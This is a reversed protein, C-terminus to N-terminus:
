CGSPRSSSVGPTAAAGTANAPATVAPNVLDYSVSERCAASNPTPIVTMTPTISTDALGAISPQITGPSPSGPIEPTSLPLAAGNTPPGGPVTSCVTTSPSGLPSVPSITGTTSGSISTSTMASPGLPMAATTSTSSTSAVTTGQAVLTGPAGVITGPPEITGQPLIVITGPPVITGLPVITGPPSALASQGTAGSSTPSVTVPASSTTQTPFSSVPSCNISTGPATPDLALPVPALTTDPAGPQSTASFPSPGNLPSTVIAGPMSPIGMATTGMTSVQALGPNCGALLIATTLLLRRM